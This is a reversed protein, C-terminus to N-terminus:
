LWCHCVYPRSHFSLYMHVYMSELTECTMERRNLLCLKQSRPLNGLVIVLEVVPSTMLSMLGHSEDSFM